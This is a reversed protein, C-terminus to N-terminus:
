GNNSPDETSPQQENGSPTETTPTSSDAAAEAAAASGNGFTMGMVFVTREETQPTVKVILVSAVDKWEGQQFFPKNAELTASEISSCKAYDEVVVPQSPQLNGVFFEVKAEKHAIAQLSFATADIGARATTKKLDLVFIAPRGGELVLKNSPEGQPIRFTFM